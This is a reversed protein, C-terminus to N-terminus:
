PKKQSYPRDGSPQSDQGSAHRPHGAHQQHASHLYRAMAKFDVMFTKDKLEGNLKITEEPDKVIVLEGDQKNYNQLNVPELLVVKEELQNAKEVLAKELLGLHEPEGNQLIVLKRREKFNFYGRVIEKVVSTYFENKAKKEM